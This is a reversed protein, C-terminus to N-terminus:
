QVVLRRVVKQGKCSFVVSYIGKPLRQANISYTVPGDAALSSTHVTRGTVDIISVEYNGSAEIDIHATSNSPNPYFHGIHSNLAPLAISLDPESYYNNDLVFTIDDSPLPTTDFDFRNSDLYAVTDLMNTFYFSYYGGQAATMPKTITKGNNSTASIYYEVTVTSDVTTGPDISSTAMRGYFRNGNARLNLTQWDGGAIRYVCEAHAIGSKNTIVASVPVDENQQLLANACGRINKHLIRIPNDAPIQKTICHIAGGSGDFERVDVPYLTYGPYAKKLQEYRELDWAATPVGNSVTSFVPQLIVNNVFTHNSYTRTYQNDYTTQNSFNGGNDTCPFPIYTKDYNRGFFSSYSCLSDINKSATAYDTWNSYADPFKSFVFGNEDCMDVYLDIHGTGGDYRFAPLIYTARQGLLGMLARKVQSQSLSPKSTYAISSTDSGDWTIQGRRDANNSYLADSSLVMGVGDVLCNGGEWEISTMYQPLQLQKRILTSLSDDLARGPYYEFDMMAVNDQDGYYFCIPGCDRYWFSNGTGVIFRLRDHRLNLRTLTRKVKNTDQASEVRVWAEAGGMQIGDMLYFFIKGFDSSTDMEPIYPGRGQTTYSPYHYYDGIGTVVPDAYWYYDNEHGPVLYDYYCTVVIAKVEEWEGPYWVRESLKPSKPQTTQMQPAIPFDNTRVIKSADRQQITHLKHKRVEDKSVQATAATVLGILLLISLVKRTYAM